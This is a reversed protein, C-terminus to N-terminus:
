KKNVMEPVVNNVQALLISTMVLDLYDDSIWWEWNEPNCGFIVKQSDDEKIIVPMGNYDLKKKDGSFGHKCLLKLAPDKVERM